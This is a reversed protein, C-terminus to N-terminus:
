RGDDVGSLSRLWDTAAPEVRRLGLEMGHFALAIAFIPIALGRVGSPYLMTLSLWLLGLLTFSDRARSTLARLSSDTGTTSSEPLESRVAESKSAHEGNEVANELWELQRDDIRVTIREAM